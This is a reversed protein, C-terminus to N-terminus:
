GRSELNLQWRALAHRHHLGAQQLQQLLELLSIPADIVRHLRYIGGAPMRSNHGSGGLFRVDAAPLQPAPKLRRHPNTEFLKLAQRPELVRHPVEQEVLLRGIQRCGNLMAIKILRMENVVEPVQGAFRRAAEKAFVVEHGM